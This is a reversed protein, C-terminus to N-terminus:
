SAPDPLPHPVDGRIQLADKINKDLVPAASTFDRNKEFTTNYVIEDNANYLIVRCSGMHIDSSHYVRMKFNTIYMPEDLLLEITGRSVKKSGGTDLSKIFPSFQVSGSDSFLYPLHSNGIDGETMSMTMPIDGIVGYYSTRGTIDKVTFGKAYVDKVTNGVPSSISFLLDNICFSSDLSHGVCNIVIKKTMVQKVAPPIDTIFTVNNDWTKAMFKQLEDYNNKLAIFDENLELYKEKWSKFVKARPHNSIFDIYREHEEETKLFSSSHISVKVEPITGLGDMVADKINNIVGDLALTEPILGLNVNILKKQYKVGSLKPMGIIKNAPVYLLFTGNGQLGILPVDDRLDNNFDDETLGKPLYVTNLPDEENKSLERLMRVSVVTYFKNNIDDGDFPSSFTFIGETKLAPIIM